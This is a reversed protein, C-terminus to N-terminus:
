RGSLRCRYRSGPRSTRTSPSGPRLRPALLAYSADYFSLNVFAKAAPVHNNVNFNASLTYTSGAPYALVDTVQVTQTYSGGTSYEALMTNATLPTVGDDLGVIAGNEAGWQSLISTGSPPFVATIPLLPPAGNFEPDVLLNARAAPPTAVAATLLCASLLFVSVRRNM